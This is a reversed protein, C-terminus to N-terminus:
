QNNVEALIALVEAQSSAAQIRAEIDPMDGAHGAGSAVQSSRAWAEQEAKQEPAPDPSLLRAEIAAQRIAETNLDGDYGKVFYRAAADDPDLGAKAFARERELREAKAAIEKLTKNEAKLEKIVDRLPNRSRTETEELDEFEDNFDSM